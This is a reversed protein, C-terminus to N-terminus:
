GRKAITRVISRVMLLAFMGTLCGLLIIRNANVAPLWTTEGDKVVYVGAPTASWLGGGGWGSLRASDEAAPAGDGGGFAGRLSAVPIISVGDRDVPEGFVRKVSSNDSVAGIMDGVAM